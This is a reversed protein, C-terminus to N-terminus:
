LHDARTSGPVYMKCTAAIFLCIGLSLNVLFVCLSFIQIPTFLFFMQNVHCGFFNQKKFEHCKKEQRRIFCNDNMRILNGLLEVVVVCSYKQVNM